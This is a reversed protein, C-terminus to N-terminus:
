GDRGRDGRPRPSALADRVAEAISRALGRADAPVPRTSDITLTRAAQTQPMGDLGGLLDQLQRVIETQLAPGAEPGIGAGDVVIREIAIRAGQRSM